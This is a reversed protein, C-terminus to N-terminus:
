ENKGLNSSIKNWLIDPVMVFGFATVIWPTDSFVIIDGLGISRMTHKRRRDIRLVSYKRFVDNVSGAEGEGVKNYTWTAMKMGEEIWNISSNLSCVLMCEIRDSPSIYYVSYDIDM